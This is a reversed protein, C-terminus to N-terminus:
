YKSAGLSSDGRPWWWHVLEMNIGIVFIRNCDAPGHLISLYLGGHWKYNCFTINLKCLFWLRNIVFVFIDDHFPDKTTAQVHAGPQLTTILTPLHQFFHFLSLHFSPYLCCSYDYLTVILKM